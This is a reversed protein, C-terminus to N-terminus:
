LENKKLIIQKGKCHFDITVMYHTVIFGSEVRNKCSFYSTLKSFNSICLFTM